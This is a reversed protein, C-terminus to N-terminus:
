KTPPRERGQHAIPKEVTAVNVDAPDAEAQADHLQRAIDLSEKMLADAAAFDGQEGALVAAAFLARSRAKTPAAAREIKLLKGLMDRGEAHYDRREWSRFLAAGLRLGWEADGTKTLWELSARFNSHELRFRELWEAGEAGCEEKAEEEALVICYAAHARKTVPEEGSTVLKEEAYERITELMMFRSEGMAQEAQQVLSKDVMSAMGDLLDLDLDGKTNCVAEAGELTCGGVFVSLRRFLKQEAASLLDYSWDIAARLTQQRQPMDRAGGTLLQL